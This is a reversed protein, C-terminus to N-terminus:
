DLLKKLLKGIHKQVASIDPQYRLNDECSQALEAATPIPKGARLARVIEHAVHKPWDETARPGPTRRTPRTDDAPEPAPPEASPPAPVKARPLLSLIEDADFEYNGPPADWRDDGVTAYWRDPDADDCTELVSLHAVEAPRVLKGDRWIHCDYNHLAKTIREAAAPAAMQTMLIELAHTPSIREGAKKKTARKARAM